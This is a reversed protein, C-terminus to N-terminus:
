PMGFMGQGMVHTAASPVFTETLEKNFLTIYNINYCVNIPITGLRGVNQANAAGGWHISFAKSGFHAKLTAV